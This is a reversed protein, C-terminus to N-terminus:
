ECKKNNTIFNYWQFSLIILLYSYMTIQQICLKANKNTQKNTQISTSQANHTFLYLNKELVNQKKNSLFIMEYVM